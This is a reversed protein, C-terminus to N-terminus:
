RAVVLGIVERAGTEKLVRAAESLTAGTTTIDDVLIIKKNKIADPKLVGFSNKMNFLRERGALETQSTTNRIKALIDSRLPTFIKESLKEALLEAQNYGRMRKRQRSAPIPIILAEKKLSPLHPSIVEALMESFISVLSSVGHYKFRRLAESLTRDEYIGWYYLRDLFLLSGKNRIQRKTKLACERCLFGGNKSCGICREPFLVSMIRDLATHILSAM